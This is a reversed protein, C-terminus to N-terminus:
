SSGSETRAKSIAKKLEGAPLYGPVVDGTSMVITPTGRVGVLRGMEYQSAVPNDCTKPEVARRAKADTMAQQPDEACWVSVMTDYSKSPIGARPFAIYRVAIGEALYDAMESHLKACYGCDVDTFVTVTATPSVPSFVIMSEEGLSDIAAARARNKAPRTLNKRSELDVIEGRLMFRGDNSVYFLHPGVVVEYMGDVPSRAVRDAAVGPVLKAVADEVAEPVADEAAMPASAALTLLTLAVLNLSKM